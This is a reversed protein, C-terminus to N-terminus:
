ACYFMGKVNINYLEDWVEETAAELDDFSIHRTVSANNVLLDVTGFRQVITDVMERVEKDRSVDAQIAIARGGEYNIIQATEEADAKSRSYNVAVAVGRKALALCTARGIGTGGGTVLAVKDKLDM